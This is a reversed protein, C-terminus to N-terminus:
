PFTEEVELKSRCNKEEQNDNEKGRAKNWGRIFVPIVMDAIPILFSQM